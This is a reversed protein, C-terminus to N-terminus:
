LKILTGKWNKPPETFGILKTYIYYDKDVTFYNGKSSPKPKDKFIFIKGYEDVLKYNAWEPVVIEINITKM